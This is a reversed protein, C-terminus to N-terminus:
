DFETYYLKDKEVEVIRGCNTYMLLREKNKVASLRYAKQGTEVKVFTRSSPEFCFIYDEGMIVYEPVLEDDETVTGTIQKIIRAVLLKKEPVSLM